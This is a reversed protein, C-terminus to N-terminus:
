GPKTTGNRSYLFLQNLTIRLPGLIKPITFSCKLKLDGTVNAGLLLALRNEPVKFGPMSNKERAIFTRSPIKKWYSGINFM